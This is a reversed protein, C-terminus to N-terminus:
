RLWLLLLHDKSAEVWIDITSLLCPYRLFPGTKNVVVLRTKTRTMGHWSWDDRCAARSKAYWVRGCKLTCCQFAPFPGPSLAVSEISYSQVCVLTCTNSIHEHWMIVTVKDGKKVATTRIGNVDSGCGPETVCYAQPLIFYALLLWQTHMFADDWLVSAAKLHEHLISISPIPRPIFSSSIEGCHSKIEM